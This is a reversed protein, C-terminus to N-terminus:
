CLSMWHIVVSMSHFPEWLGGCQDSALGPGFDKSVVSVRAGQEALRIACTLGIVGSGLVTIHYDTSM